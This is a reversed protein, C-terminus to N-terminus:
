DNIIYNTLYHDIDCRQEWRHKGTWQEDISEKLAKDIKKVVSEPINSIDLRNGYKDYYGDATKITGKRKDDWKADKLESNYRTFPISFKHGYISSYYNDAGSQDLVVEATHKVKGSQPFIEYMKMSPESQAPQQLEGWIITEQEYQNGIRIADARTINPIFYSTEKNDYMGEMRRFGYHGDKLEREIKKLNYSNFVNSAQKGMPNAGTLIAFSHIRPLVGQMAGLVKRQFKDEDLMSKGGGRYVHEPQYNLIEKFREIYEM